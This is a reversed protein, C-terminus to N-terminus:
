YFHGLFMFNCAAHIITIGCTRGGVFRTLVGGRFQLGCEIGATSESSGFTHEGVLAM